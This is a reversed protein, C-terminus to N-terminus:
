VDGGHGAVLLDVIRRAAQGDGFPNAVRAMAAYAGPDHLLREAEALITAPETGVLRATGAAIAEPRETERRLVLTPKGLTPAEEQIGGSDTLILTARAMLHVFAAYDQPPLLHIRGHGGLIRRAPEQVNPNLHVPYALEIDPNRDVLARLAGFIGALPAGFNERRHATLLVLRRGAAPFPWAPPVTAELTALLADVVTNGTIHIGTEPTGERRLAEAARATPAFHWTALMGVIRRNIEEPFPAYRDHTRLGAEVHGVPLRAYFAALAGAMATTTDGQVLVIDPQDLALVESVGILARATLAPLAQNPQMLALDYTPAIGFVALVQDLMERHQATVCARVRVGPRRGLERIVPALKVAEPRTGFITLIRVDGM